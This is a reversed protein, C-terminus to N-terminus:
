ISELWVLVPLLITDHPVWAFSCGSLEGQSPTNLFVIGDGHSLVVGTNALFPMKSEGESQASYISTM